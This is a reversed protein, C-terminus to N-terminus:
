SGGSVITGQRINKYLAKFLTVPNIGPHQYFCADEYTLLAKEFRRPISDSVPFRWIDDAALKVGLLEDNKDFLVTSYSKDIVPKSIPWSLFVLLLFVLGGLSFKIKHSSITTLIKSM